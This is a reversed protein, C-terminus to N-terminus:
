GPVVTYAKTVARAAGDVNTAYVTLTTVGPTTADIFVTSLGDGFRNGAADVWYWGVANRVTVSFAVATEGVVLRDPGSISVTPVPAPM